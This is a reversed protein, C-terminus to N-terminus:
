ESSEDNVNEIINEVQQIRRGLHLLVFGNLITCCIVIITLVGTDTNRGEETGFFTLLSFSALVLMKM